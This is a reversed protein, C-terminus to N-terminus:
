LNQMVEGRVKKIELNTLPILGKQLLYGDFGITDSSIIEKIFERMGPILDLHEKKFYIFLPRSVKYRSSAINEFSPAVNNILAPQIAQHNEELFSFGFIGLADVDNKLKQVILNDNEGAEIFKGDSRILHCKKQRIKKDGFALNFEAMAMCPEEMVLEVFADRTGSTSPPGYITINVDPLNVDIERWKQYFNDILKGTKPDPIQAALALFIQKKTLSYKKGTISNALVIGDYGIKIEVIGNIGHEHCKEIESKEIPRSADSFDPYSYGIGSCFLKFGGGTGTSEVIPTKFSKEFKNKSNKIKSARGFEEAITAAFPYVTSSGVVNIHDRASSHFEFALVPASIFLSSIILLLVQLM